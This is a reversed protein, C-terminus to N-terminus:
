VSNTELRFHRALLREKRFIPWIFCSVIGFDDVGQPCISQEQLVKKQITILTAAIITNENNYYSNCALSTFLCPYINGPFPLIFSFCKDMGFVSIHLPIKCCM